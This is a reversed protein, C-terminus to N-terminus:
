YALPNTVAYSVSCTICHINNQDSHLINSPLFVYQAGPKIPKLTPGQSYFICFNLNLSNRVYTNIELKEIQSYNSFTSQLKLVLDCTLIM